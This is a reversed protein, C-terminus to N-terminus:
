REAAHIHESLEDVILPWAGRPLSHGMGLIEVLRAGPIARATARGASLPILPDEAGHIVLTPARIAALARRRNGAALIAAYQRAFGTRDQSRDYALGFTERVREAEFPFGSGGIARFVREGHTMTGARDAPPPSLLARLARPKSWSRQGTTSMISCLSRVRGPHELALTQAIMGGMSVGAVHAAEIGLHSLLGAADTAMDSLTYPAEVRRGFFARLTQM